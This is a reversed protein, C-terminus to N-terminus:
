EGGTTALPHCACSTAPPSVLGRLKAKSLVPARRMRSLPLPMLRCLKVSLPPVQRAGSWACM